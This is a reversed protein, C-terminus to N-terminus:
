AQDGSDVPVHVDSVLDGVDGGILVPLDNRPDPHAVPPGTLGDLVAHRVRFERHVRGAHPPHVADVAVVPRRVDVDRGVAGDIARQELVRDAARQRVDFRLSDADQGLIVRRSSEPSGKMLCCDTSARVASYLVVSSAVCAM